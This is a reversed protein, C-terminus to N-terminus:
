HYPSRRSRCLSYRRSRCIHIHSLFFRVNGSPEITGDEKTVDASFSINYTHGDVWNNYPQSWNAFARDHPQLVFPGNDATAAYVEQNTDLDVISMSLGYEGEIVGNLLPVSFSHARADDIPYVCKYTIDTVCEMVDAQKLTIDASAISFMITSINNALNVENAGYWSTAPTTNDFITM